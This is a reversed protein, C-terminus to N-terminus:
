LRILEEPKLGEQLLQQKINLLTNPNIQNGKEDYTVEYPRLTFLIVGGPKEPKLYLRCKQVWELNKITTVFEASDKVSGSFSYTYRQANVHTSFLLGSISLILLLRLM